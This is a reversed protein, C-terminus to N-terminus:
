KRFFDIPFILGTGSARRKDYADSSPQRDNGRRQGDKHTKANQTNEKGNEKAKKPRGRKKLKALSEDIPKTIHVEVAPKSPPTNQVPAPVTPKQDQASGNINGPEPKKNFEAIARDAESMDKNLEKRSQRAM